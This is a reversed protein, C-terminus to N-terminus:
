SEETIEYFTDILNHETLFANMVKVQSRYVYASVVLTAAVAYKARNRTVHNKVTSLKTKVTM